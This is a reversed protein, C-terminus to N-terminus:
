CKLLKFPIRFHFINECFNWDEEKKWKKQTIQLTANSSVEFDYGPDVIM